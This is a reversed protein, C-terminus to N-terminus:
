GTDDGAPSTEHQRETVQGALEVRSGIDLKRFVQRLHFKVTHPSIFMQAGVQKNTLGQAVLAAVSHETDTLSDWGTEPRASQAWHRRRVGFRRLRARVRASDRLAGIKGYGELAEDLSHIAATHDAEGSARALLVGLDEAASARAWPDRCGTRAERLAAVDNNLIGRAHAAAQAFLPFDPNDHALREITSVIMEAQRRDGAALAVRTAWAALNSEVVLHWRWMRTDPCSARLVRMARRPGGQAEAVLVTGWAVWAPPFAMGRAAHARYREIYHDVAPLDGRLLSVVALVILGILTFSHTGLEDAIELGAEAEAAADNLRGTVLRLYARVFAAGAAQVTHGMAEIEEDVSQLVDEAGTFQGVNVLCIVLSLRSAASHAGIAGGAAIQAAERIYALGDAVRGEAWAVNRLLVLAGAQASAGHQDREALIAEARQRGRWIDQRVILGVFWTLEAADHLDGPLDPQTLLSEVEAVTEEPRGNFL